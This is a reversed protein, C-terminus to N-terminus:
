KLFGQILQTTKDALQPANNSLSVIVNVKTLIDMFKKIITISEKNAHNKEHQCSMILGGVSSELSHQLEDEGWIKYTVLARYIEHLKKLCLKTLNNDINSSLIHDQLEKVSGLIDVIKDIEIDKLETKKSVIDACFELQTMTVQDIQQKYTNWSSHLNISKFLSEIKLIPKLYREQELDNIKNIYIKSKEILILIQSVQEFVNQNEEDLDNRIFNFNCSLMSNESHIPLLNSLIFYLRSVPNNATIM